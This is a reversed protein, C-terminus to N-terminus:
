EEVEEAGHLNQVKATRKSLSKWGVRIVTDRMASPDFPSIPALVPVGM